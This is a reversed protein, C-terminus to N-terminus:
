ESHTHQQNIIPFLFRLVVNISRKFIIIIYFAYFAIYLEVVFYYLLCMCCVSFEFLFIGAELSDRNVNKKKKIERDRKREIAM